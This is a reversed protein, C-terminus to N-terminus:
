APYLQSLEETCRGPDCCLFLHLGLFHCQQSIGLPWGVSPELPAPFIQVPHFGLAPATQALPEELPLFGAEIGHVAKHRLGPVPCIGAALQGDICRKQICHDASACFENGRMSHVLSSRIKFIVQRLIVFDNLNSFVRPIM